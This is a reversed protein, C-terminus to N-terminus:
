INNNYCFNDFYSEENAQIMGGIDSDTNQSQAANSAMHYCKRASYDYYMQDGKNIQKCTEACVSKFKATIKKM